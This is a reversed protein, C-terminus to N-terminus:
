RFMVNIGALMRQELEEHTASVELGDLPHSDLWDALEKAEAPNIRDELKKLSLERIQSLNNSVAM